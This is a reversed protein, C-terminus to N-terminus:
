TVALGAWAPDCACILLRNRLLPLVGLMITHSDMNPLNRTLSLEVDHLWHDRFFHRFADTAPSVLEFVHTPCATTEMM